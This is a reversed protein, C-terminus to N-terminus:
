GPLMAEVVPWTIRRVVRDAGGVDLGLGRDVGLVRMGAAQASAIGAPTDEVAVCAAPDLGLRDAALRYPAPDPKHDDTDERAVTTAFWGRLDLHDLLAELYDRGSSTCVAAPVGADRLATLTAAVDDFLVVQDLRDRFAARVRRRYAAIGAEDYGMLDVLFARTHPWARGVVADRDAETLTYGDEALVQAMAEHSVRESDVTTGDFDFVVAAPRTRTM